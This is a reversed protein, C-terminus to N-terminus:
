LFFFFLIVLISVFYKLLKTIGKNLLYKSFIEETGPMVSSDYHGRSELFEHEIELAFVSFTFM